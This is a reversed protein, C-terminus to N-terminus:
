RGTPPATQPAPLAHVEMDISGRDDTTFVAVEQDDIFLSHKASKEIEIIDIELEQGQGLATPGPIEIEIEGIVRRGSRDMLAADKEVNGLPDTRDRFEGSLVTRGAANRVEVLQAGSLDPLSANPPPPAPGLRAAALGVVLFAGLLVALAVPMRDYSPTKDVVTAGDAISPGRSWSSQAARFTEQTGGSLRMAM